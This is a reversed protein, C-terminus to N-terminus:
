DMLIPLLLASSTKRSVYKGPDPINQDNMGPPILWTGPFFGFGVKAENFEGPLLGAFESKIFKAHMGNPLFYSSPFRYWEKGLCVTDGPRAIGPQQLASYIQLPARYATIMGFTRFLGIDIALLVTMSVFLLKIKAPVKGILTAPDGNGVYGLIAHLAIAANLALFPYAPYMFREEKHAQASFIGLWMYFPTVFFASRMLTFKSSSHTRLLYQLTVIPGASLALLFWLNFNLLLNRFYFDFPETGFIDPGRGSGSFINYSVISWPV